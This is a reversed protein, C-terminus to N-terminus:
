VLKASVQVSPQAEVFKLPNSVPNPNSLPVGKFNMQFDQARSPPSDMQVPRQFMESVATMISPLAGGKQKRQKRTKKGGGVIAKPFSNLGLSAPITNPISEKGCQTPMFSPINAFGFGSSVYPPINLNLPEPPRLTWDIPAAGGKQVKNAKMFRIYEKAATESVPKGFLKKWEKRFDSEITPSHIRKQLFSDLSEFAKRLKPITMGKGSKANRTKRVM